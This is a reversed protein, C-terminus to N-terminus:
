GNALEGTFHLPPVSFVPKDFLEKLDYKLNQFQVKGHKDM